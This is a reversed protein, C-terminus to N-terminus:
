FWINMSICCYRMMFGYWVLRALGVLSALCNSQERQLAGVFALLPMTDRCQCSSGFLGSIANLSCFNAVISCKSRCVIKENAPELDRPRKLNTSCSRCEGHAAPNDKVLVGENLLLRRPSLALLNWPPVASRIREASPM